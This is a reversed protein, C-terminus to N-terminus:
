LFFFPPPFPPKSKIQSLSWRLGEMLCASFCPAHVAAFDICVCLALLCIFLPLSPPLSLSPACFNFFCLYVNAPQFFLSWFCPIHTHFSHIWSLSLSPSFFLSFSLSPSFSSAHALPFKLCCLGERHSQCWSYPGKSTLKLYFLCKSKIYQYTVSVGACVRVCVCVYTRVGLKSIFPNLSFQHVQKPNPATKESFMLM